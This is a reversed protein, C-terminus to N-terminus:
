FNVKDSLHHSSSVEPKSAPKGLWKTASAFCASIFEKLSLSTYSTMWRLSNALNSLGMKRLVFHTMVFRPVCAWGTALALSAALSNAVLPPM